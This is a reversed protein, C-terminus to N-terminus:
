NEKVKNQPIYVMVCVQNRPLTLECKAKLEKSEKLPNPFVSIMIMILLSAVVMGIFFAGWGSDNSSM